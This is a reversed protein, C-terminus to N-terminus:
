AAPRARRRGGAEDSLGALDVTHGLKRVLRLMKNDTMETSDVVWAIDRASM